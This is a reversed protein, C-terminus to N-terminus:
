NRISSTLFKCPILTLIICVLHLNLAFCFHLHWSSHSVYNFPPFNPACLLSFSLFLSVLLGTWM